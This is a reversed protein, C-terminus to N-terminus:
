KQRWKKYEGLCLDEKQLCKKLKGNKALRRNYGTRLLMYHDDNQLRLTLYVYLVNKWHNKSHWNYHRIWWHNYLVVKLQMQHKPINYVKPVLPISVLSSSFCDLCSSSDYLSRFVLFGSHQHKRICVSKWFSLEKFAAKINGRISKLYSRRKEVCWYKRWKLDINEQKDCNFQMLGIDVSGNKNKHILNSRFNTEHWAISVGILPDIDRREAEICIPEAYKEAKEEAWSPNLAM